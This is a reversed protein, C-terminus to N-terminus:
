TQYDNRGCVQESDPTTPIGILDFDKWEFIVMSAIPDSDDQIDEKIFKVLIHPDVAGGWAAKSYM